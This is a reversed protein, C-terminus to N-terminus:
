ALLKRAQEETLPAARDVKGMIAQAVGTEAAVLIAEMVKLVHLAVDGSARPKRAEVLSAALDALGVMRYNARDPAKVPWNPAGFLRDATDIDQWEAGHDSVSVVGGFADPDPLRLSGQTGHLEIPQNSHRHVDWSAGFTLQLGSSFELLSLLSTPTGVKVKTGKRPGEATLLRESQGSTAVAQVRRVPGILNVLMTLYYPGMDMVPGGGPQFYFAPDPHWHEMGHSLMFATGIVPQGIADADLLHRALQGAPGLFTDPAAGIVLGREAARAVLQSGQAATAALPKETFVHKGAEIARMSVDFHASPITLNLVLDIDPAAILDDVDMAKLRFQEARRVATESNIDACARMEVGGFLPANHLYQLSISGCGVIGVRLRARTV